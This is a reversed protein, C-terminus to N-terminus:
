IDDHISSLCNLDEKLTQSSMTGGPKLESDSDEGKKVDLVCIKSVPRRYTGTTTRVTVVRVIGDKGPFLEAIIGKPWSNRPLLDDVVIVVDGVKIPDVRSNWKTRRTLTPLYEKIWRQWFRDALMQSRRWLKRLVMDDESFQGPPGKASSRGILFHNPTLAEESGNWHYM